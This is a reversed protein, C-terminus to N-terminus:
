IQCAHNTKQGKQKDKKAKELRERIKKLRECIKQQKKRDHRTHQVQVSQM